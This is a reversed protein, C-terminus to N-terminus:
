AIPVAARCRIARMTTAMAPTRRVPNQLCCCTRKALTSAFCYPTGRDESDMDAARSSGLLEVRAVKRAELGRGPALSVIRTERANHGMAFAYLVGEKTTFRIDAGTLDPRQNENFHEPTGNLRRGADNEQNRPRRWISEMAPHRLNGRLEGEDM